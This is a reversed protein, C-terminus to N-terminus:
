AAAVGESDASDVEQATPRVRKRARAPAAAPPQPAAEFQEPQVQDQPVHGLIALYGRDVLAQIRPTLEVEGEDGARLSDVNVTARVIVVSSQM